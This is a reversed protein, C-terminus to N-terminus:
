LALKKRFLIQNHWAFASIGIENARKEIKRFFPESIDKELKLTVENRETVRELIIALKDKM